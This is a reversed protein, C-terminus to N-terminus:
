QNLAANVNPVLFVVGIGLIVFSWYRLRMFYITSSPVRPDAHPKDLTREVVLVAFLWNALAGLGFGAVLGFVAAWRSPSVSDGFFPDFIRSFGFSLLFGAVAFALGLIGWRRWFFIFV